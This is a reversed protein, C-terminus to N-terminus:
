DFAAQLLEKRRREYEAAGIVGTRRLTALNRLAQEVNPTAAPPRAATPAAMPVAAPVTEAVPAADGWAAPAVDGGPRGKWYGCGAVGLLVAVVVAFMVTARGTV